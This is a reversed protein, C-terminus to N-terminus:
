FGPRPLYEDGCAHWQSTTTPQSQNDAKNLFDALMDTTKEYTTDDNGLEVHQKFFRWRMDIPRTTPKNSLNQEPGMTIAGKSDRCLTTRHQSCFRLVILTTNADSSQTGRPYGRLTRLIRSKLVWRTKEAWFAAGLLLFICARTCQGHDISSGWKLESDLHCNLKFIFDELQIDLTELVLRFDRTKVVYQAIRSYADWM